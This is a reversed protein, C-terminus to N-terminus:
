LAHINQITPLSIDASRVVCNAKTTRDMNLRKRQETKGAIKYYTSAIKKATGHEVVAEMMKHAKELTEKKCISGRV